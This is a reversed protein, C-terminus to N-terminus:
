GLGVTGPGPSGSIYGATHGMTDGYQLGSFGKLHNGESGFGLGLFGM